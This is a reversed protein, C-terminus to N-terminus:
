LALAGGVALLGAAGAGLWLATSGGGTEALATGEGEGSEEAPTGNDDASDDASDDAASDDQAGGGSGDDGDEAPVFGSPPSECGVGDDDRDLHEGYHPDGVAIHAYGAEYAAPCNEFEQGHHALATAPAVALGLGALVAVGRAARIHQPKM